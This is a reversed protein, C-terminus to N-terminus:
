VSLPNGLMSFIVEIPWVQEKRQVICVIMKCKMYIEKLFVRFQVIELNMERFIITILILSMKM